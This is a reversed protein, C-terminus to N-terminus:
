WAGRTVKGPRRPPFVTIVNQINGGNFADNVHNALHRHADEATDCQRADVVQLTRWFHRGICRNSNRWALRTGFRLEKYTHTYIGESDIESEIQRWRETVDPIWKSAVSDAAMAELFARAQSKLERRAESSSTSGTEPLQFPSTASDALNM